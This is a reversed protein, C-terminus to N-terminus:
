NEVEPIQPVECLRKVRKVAKQPLSPPRDLAPAKQGAYAFGQCTTPGATNVTPLALRGGAAVAAFETPTRDDLASHPRTRNFDTRWRELKRQADAIDFFVETNLFEDRLRGNFTEAFANEVPKGPRIFNLKVGTQYAWIEM